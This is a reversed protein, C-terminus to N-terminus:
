YYFRSGNYYDRFYYRFYYILRVIRKGEENIHYKITKGSEVTTSLFRESISRREFVYDYIKVGLYECLDKRTVGDQSRKSIEFLAILYDLYTQTIKMDTKLPNKILKNSRILNREFKRITLDYDDLVNKIINQDDYIRSIKSIDDHIVFHCNRCIYGGIQKELEKVIESCSLSRFLKRINDIRKKKENPNLDKLEYLHNFEFSVLHDLTNFEGCAPCVGGYLSDIIYRKKLYLKIQRRIRKKQRTSYTRTLFFNDVCVRILLHIIVPPLDFISQPFENPINEWSILKKFDNFTDRSLLSHHVGCKLVVSESEMKKILDRLFFPNGRDNSFLQHLYFATYSQNREVEHHFEKSRIRPSSSNIILGEKVCDPCSAIGNYFYIGNYLHKMAYLKIKNGIIDIRTADVKEIVSSTQSQNPFFKAYKKKSKLFHFIEGIVDRFRDEKLFLDIDNAILYRTFPLISFDADIIKHEKISIILFKVIEIIDFLFKEFVEPYNTAIDQIVMKERDSFQTIIKHNNNQNFIIENLSLIIKSTNIEELHFSAKNYDLNPDFLLEFIFLSIIKRIRGFRLSRFDFEIKRALDKYWLNYLRSVVDQSAGVLKSLKRGSIQHMNENSILVAYIIACAHRLTNVNAPITLENNEAKSIFDRLIEESLELVDGKQKDIITLKNIIKELHNKVEKEFDIPTIIFSHTILNSQITSELSKKCKGGATNPYCGLDNKRRHMLIM